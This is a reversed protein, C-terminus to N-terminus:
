KSKEIARLVSAPDDALLADVGQRLYYPVRPEPKPDLPAVLKGQAHALRTYLPNLYLLPWVPGLLRASGTPLAKWMTIVGTPIAPNVEEVAQVLEQRFSILAVRRAMDYESLLDVLAQACDRELFREDKLELLLPTRAETAEILERLTPISEHSARAETRVTHTSGHADGPLDPQRVRLRKLESLSCDAVSGAQGTVRETTADHFCVIEGDRCFRLDTELVDAGDDLARLFSALTNEPEKSLTGRHGVILPRGLQQRGHHFTDWDISSMGNSYCLM